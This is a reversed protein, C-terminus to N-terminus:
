MGAAIRLFVANGKLAELVDYFAERRGAAKNRMEIVQPNNDTKTLEVFNWDKDKAKEIMDMLEVKKIKM